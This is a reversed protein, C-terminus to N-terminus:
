ESGPRRGGTTRCFGGARGQGRGLKQNLQYVAITFADATDFIAELGTAGGGGRCRWSPAKPQTARALAPLRNASGAKPFIPGGGGTVRPADASLM